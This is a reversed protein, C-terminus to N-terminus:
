RLEKIMEIADGDPYYNKRIRNEKFGNKRYLYYAKNTTRVELFAKKINRKNTLEFMYDLLCQGYGKNWEDKKIAINNLDVNEYLFRLDIYGIVVNEKELVYIESGNEIESEFMEKNWPHNFCENEISLITDLDKEQYPRIM